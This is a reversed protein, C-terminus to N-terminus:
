AQKKGEAEPPWSISSLLTVGSRTPAEATPDGEARRVLERPVRPARLSRSYARLELWEEATEDAFGNGNDASAKEIVPFTQMMMVKEADKLKRRVFIRVEDVADDIMRKIEKEQTYHNNVIVKLRLIDSGACDGGAAIYEDFVWFAIARMEPIQFSKLFHWRHRETIQDFLGDELINKQNM